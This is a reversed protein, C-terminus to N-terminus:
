KQALGESPQSSVRAVLIFNVSAAAVFMGDIWLAWRFSLLDSLGGLLLAGGLFGMGGITRFLGLTIGEMGPPAIDAVYAVPPPGALGEGAGMIIASLMLLYITDAYIFISIGLIVCAAAPLVTTVRGFRDSILATLPIFMLQPIHTVTLFVGIQGPGFGRVHAVLPMIAFRGGQRNAVIALNFLCAAVFGPNRLLINLSAFTSAKPTPPASVNASSAGGSSAGPDRRLTEPLWLLVIPVAVAVAVAQAYLPAKLGWVEALYGGIFPGVLVGLVVSMEQLSQYRARSQQTSVDRLYIAAGVMYMGGGLGSITRYVMLETLDGSFPVMISGLAALGTGGLLVIRRGYRQALLGSPLGMAVRGIGFVGVAMGVLFVSDNFDEAFLPLAPSIIGQSLLSFFIAACLVVVGRRSSSSTLPQSSKLM